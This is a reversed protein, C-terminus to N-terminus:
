TAPDGFVFEGGHRRPRGRPRATASPPPPVPRHLVRDSRMRVLVIIPLDALVRALRPGDYGADAVLLIDPDGPSM